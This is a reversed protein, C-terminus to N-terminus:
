PQPKAHTGTDPASAGTDWHWIVIVSLSPFLRTKRPTATRQADFPFSDGLDPMRHGTRTDRDVLVGTSASSRPRCGSAAVRGGSESGGVTAKNRQEKQGKIDDTKLPGPRLTGRVHHAGPFLFLCKHRYTMTWRWKMSASLLRPHGQREVDVQRCWNTAWSEQNPRKCSLSEM